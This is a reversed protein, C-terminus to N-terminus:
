TIVNDDQLHEVPLSPTRPGQTYSMIYTLQSIEPGKFSPVNILYLLLMAAFVDTLRDTAEGEVMM